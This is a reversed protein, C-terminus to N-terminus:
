GGEMDTTIYFVKAGDQLGAESLTIDDRLEKGKYTLRVAQASVGIMDAVMKKLDKVHAEPPLTFPIPEDRGVASVVMVDM